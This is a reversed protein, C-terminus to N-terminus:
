LAHSIWTRNFHKWGPEIEAGLVNFCCNLALVLVEQYIGMNKKGGSELLPEVEETLKWSGAQKESGGLLLPSLFPRCSFWKSCFEDQRSINLNLLEVGFFMSINAVKACCHKGSFCWVIHIGLAELTIYIQTVFRKQGIIKIEAVRWFFLENILFTNSLFHSFDGVGRCM